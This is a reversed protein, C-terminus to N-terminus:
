AAIPRQGVRTSVPRLQRKVSRAEDGSAWAASGPVTAVTAQRLAATLRAEKRYAASYQLPLLGHRDREQMTEPNATALALALRPTPDGRRLLDHLSIHNGLLWDVNGLTQRAARAWSKCVVKCKQLSDISRAEFMIVRLVDEALDDMSRHGAPHDVWRAPDLPINVETSLTSCAGDQSHSAFSLDTLALMTDGCLLQLFTILTTENVCKRLANEVCTSFCIRQQWDASEYPAISPDAATAYTRRDFLLRAMEAKQTERVASLFRNTSVRNGRDSSMKFAAHFIRTTEADLCALLPHTM